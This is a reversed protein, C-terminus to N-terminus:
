SNQPNHMFVTQEKILRIKGGKERLEMARKIKNGYNGQSWQPSGYKGIILYDTKKTVSPVNIGGMAEVAKVVEDDSGYAFQGTLCFTKGNLDYEDTCAEDLPDFLRNFINLMMQKENEDIVGDSLVDSVINFAKDFPYQGSLSMNNDLWMQLLMTEEESIIQDSIINSILQRLELLQTTTHSRKMEYSDYSEDSYVRSFDHREILDEPDAGMNICHLLIEASARTDSDAHHHNLAINFYDCVTNLKYNELQLVRRSLKCTCLFYAYPLWEIQYRQLCKHLVTMDFVANHAVLLGSSMTDKIIDWIVPFTPSDKVDEFRIGTLESNYYDFSQEPNVLYYQEDTIQGNEVVTIGIASIANNQRNPTEVDFVVYRGIM